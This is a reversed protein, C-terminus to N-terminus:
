LDGIKQTVSGEPAKVAAADESIKRLRHYIDQQVLQGIGWASEEPPIANSKIWGGNAYSFFDAGPSVTTDMNQALFDPTPKERDASQCAVLFFIAAAALLCHERM